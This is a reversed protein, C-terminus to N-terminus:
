GFYANELCYGCRSCASYSDYPIFEPVFSRPWGGGLNGQGQYAGNYGRYSGNGRGFGTNGYLGDCGDCGVDRNLPIYPSFDKNCYSCNCIASM